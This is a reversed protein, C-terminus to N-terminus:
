KGSQLRDIKMGKNRLVDQQEETLLDAKLWNLQMTLADNKKKTIKKREKKKVKPIVTNRLLVM